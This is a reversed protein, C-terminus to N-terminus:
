STTAVQRAEGSTRARVAPMFARTGQRGGLRLSQAVRSRFAYFGKGWEVHRPDYVGAPTSHCEIGSAVTLDDKAMDWAFTKIGQAEFESKAAAEPGASLPVAWVENDAALSEAVPRAMLGAAGTILIKKNKVAATM